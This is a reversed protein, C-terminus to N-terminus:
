DTVYVTKGGLITELVEIDRIRAPRDLPNEALIVFDAFKGAEISGITDEQFGQWAADITVARLAQMPTIREAMGIIRGGTSVRNVASWVLQLPDMPVVPTDCHITFRLGREISSNTPSMRAAREPGMFIDRHRDGWYYTHLVFFSPVVGLAKMRDLQDDRAMQSHIIIPRADANPHEKLAAEYADLIDDIVADGNGHIAMQVGAAHMTKVMGILKERPYQPYGRYSADGKYPVHYPKGLYGTYGQISGDGVLKAAGITLLDSQEVEFDGAEIEAAVEWRPLAVVRIPLRGREAALEFLRIAAKEARGNQATTVGKAAYHNAAYEIAVLSQEETRPPIKSWVRWFAPIEELLGTPEGTDPDMYVVGGEPQPTDSTVGALELAKSNAVGMHLSIHFVWIPHDGPVRDLDERTPHRNEALLTDDYGVGVVWEGAPTDRAKRSLAAVLDDITRNEGIPPSNLDASYLTMNGSEPFHGHADIFGPLLTKGSLDVVRTADTALARIEANSGVALIRGEAVAVAERVSNEADMTLVTGSLYVTDAEQASSSQAYLVSGALLMCAISLLAIRRM